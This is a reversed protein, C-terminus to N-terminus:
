MSCTVCAVLKAHVYPPCPLSGCQTIVPYFLAGNNDEHGGQCGERHEDVCMFETRGKHCIIHGKCQTTWGSPCTPSAPIILTTAQPARCVSCVVDQEAHGTFGQYEAGYVTARSAPISGNDLEPKM